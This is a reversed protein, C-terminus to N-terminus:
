KPGGRGAAVRAPEMRGAPRGPPLAGEAPGAAHLRGGGRLRRLGTGVGARLALVKVVPSAMAREFARWASDVRTTVSETGELVAEVHALGERAHDVAQRAGSALPVIERRLVETAREIRRVQAVLLTVVVLGVLAAVCVVVAAVLVVVDVASM